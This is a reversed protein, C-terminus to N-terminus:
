ANQDEELRIDEYGKRKAKIEWGFAIDDGEIIFRDTLREAVWIQGRGYPTIFVQYPLTTNVTEAFISEIVVECRGNEVKGEGIDGFYIEATEYSYLKRKGYDDTDVLANKQGTATYDGYITVPGQIGYNFTPRGNVTIGGGGMSLILSGGVLAIPYGNGQIIVRNTKDERYMGAGGWSINGSFTGNKKLLSGNDSLYTSTKDPDLRSTSLTGSSINTASLGTGVLNGSLQGQTINSANIHTVNILDANITGGSIKNANLTGTTIQSADINTVKVVNADITGTTINSGNITSKGKNELDTFQVLGKIDIKKESIKVISGNEDRQNYKNLTDVIRNRIVRLEIASANQSIESELTEGESKTVYKSSLGNIDYRLEATQGQLQKIQTTASRSNVTYPNGVCEITHKNGNITESMVWVHYGDDAQGTDPNHSTFLRIGRGFKRTRYATSDWYSFTAPTYAWNHNVSSLLTQAISNLATQDANYFLPNGTIIYKNSGAGVTIGIDNETARIQLADFANVDYEAVNTGMTKDSDYTASDDDYWDVVLADGTNNINAFQGRAECAWGLLDRYTVGTASFGKPITYGSFNTPYSSVGTGNYGGTFGLHQAMLRLFGLSSRPFTVTKLWEDASADFRSMRDYATIKVKTSDVREVNEVTFYGVLASANSLNNPNAAERYELETGIINISETHDYIGVPTGDYLTFPTTGDSFVLPTVIKDWFIEDAWDLVTFEIKAKATGGFRLNSDPNLNISWTVGGSVNTTNFTFDTSTLSYAM